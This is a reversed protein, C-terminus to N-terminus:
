SGPVQKQINITATFRYDNRSSDEVLIAEDSSAKGSASPIASTAEAFKATPVQLAVSSPQVTKMSLPNSSAPDSGPNSFDGPEILGVPTNDIGLALLGTSPNGTLLDLAYSFVIDEHDVGKASTIENWTLVHNDRKRKLLRDPHGALMMDGVPNFEIGNSAFFLLDDPGLSVKFEYPDAIINAKKSVDGFFRTQWRGNVAVRLLWEETQTGAVLNALTNIM